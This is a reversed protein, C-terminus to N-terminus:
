ILLLSSIHLRVYATQASAICFAPALSLSAPTPLCPCCENVESFQQSPKRYHGGSSSPRDGGAAGVREAGDGRSM